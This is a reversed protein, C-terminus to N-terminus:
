GLVVNRIFYGVGYALAAAVVGIALTELGSKWWRMLSWKSKLTGITFFVLGTYVGSWVFAGDAEFLFPLIPILGCILFASFTSAAALTPSRVELPLGYEETLMTQVWQHRDSTIVEVITELDDGKFGKNGYIQRIEEREGQPDDAIHRLEVDKLQELEEREARTGSFNSAAMSFGDAVLNAFGLVLLVTVSLEAGSVGSVVAFTTVAGDIGGYIWDRLYSVRPGAALRATIAEATHDHEM